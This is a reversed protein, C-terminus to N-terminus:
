QSGQYNEWGMAIQLINHLEDISITGAVLLRRWVMPSIGVLHVKLQHIQDQSETAKANM